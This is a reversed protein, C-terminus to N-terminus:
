IGVIKTNDANNGYVIEVVVLKLVFIKWGKGKCNQIIWTMEKGWAKPEHKVHIWDLVQCWVSKLETCEFLLYNISEDNACFCCRKSDLLLVDFEHLRDKTAFNNKFFIIWPYSLINAFIKFGSYIVWKVSIHVSISIM